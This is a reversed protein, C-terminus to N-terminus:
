EAPPGQLDGNTAALLREPHSYCVLREGRVFGCVTIGAEEALDVALSSPAGVAVLLPFGGAIAKAIIDFGVRGSVCLLSADDYSASGLLRAGLVKDVANHRGVDERVVIPDGATTFVGAAHLGGTRSFVGQRRRLVDPLSLLTTVEIPTRDVDTRPAIPLVDDISQKGCVGCAASVSGYRGAIPRLTPRDLTVSVVNYMQDDTLTTDLCYTITSIHGPGDVLGESRLFGAALEFDNGPTRMTVAVRGAPQGPAAVRIELPEETVVTDEGTRRAGSEFVDVRRRVSPGPRKALLTM